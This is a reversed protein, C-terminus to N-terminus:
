NGHNKPHALQYDLDDAYFDEVLAQQLPYHERAYETSKQSYFVYFPLYNKDICETVIRDYDFEEYPPEKSITYKITYSLDEWNEGNYRTNTIKYIFNYDRVLEETSVDELIDTWLEGLYTITKEASVPKDQYGRRHLSSPIDDMNRDGDIKNSFYYEFRFQDVKGKLPKVTIHFEPINGLVTRRLSKSKFSLTILSDPQISKYHTIISDAQKRLTEANPYLRAYEERMTKADPGGHNYEHMQGYTIAGYKANKLNDTLLWDGLSRYFQYDQEFAADKKINARLEAVTLAETIPKNLGNSSCGAIVLILPIFKLYKM